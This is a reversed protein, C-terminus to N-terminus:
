IKGHNKIVKGCNYCHNNDGVLHHKGDPSNISNCEKINIDKIGKAIDMLKEHQTKPFEILTQKHPHRAKLDEEIAEMIAFVSDLTIDGYMQGIYEKAKVSVDEDESAGFLTGIVVDPNAKCMEEARARIHAELSIQAKILEDVDKQYDKVTKRLFKLLKDSKKGTAM